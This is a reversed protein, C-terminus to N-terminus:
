SFFGWAIIFCAVVGITIFDFGLELILILTSIDPLGTGLNLFTSSYIIAFMIWIVSIALGYKIWQKELM